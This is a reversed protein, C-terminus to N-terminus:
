KNEFIKNEEKKEKEEQEENILTTETAADSIESQIESKDSVPEIDINTSTAAVAAENVDIVEKEDKGKKSQLPDGDAQQQAKWMKAYQGNKYLLDWHSGREVITGKDLVFIEDCNVVTSLRHVVFITTHHHLTIKQEKKNEKLLEDINSMIARETTTDLASTAEDFLLIRPNKLIARALAVRQKEGGSIMTGRQGVKTEYGDPFQNVIVDHINAKKAAEYIEEPKADPKAYAINYYISQNFLPTDQPVIGFSNRLSRIKVQSIDQDDIYIKGEQPDYFRQLLRLITSKGSGSPGVFAVRSGAPISFSINNLIPQREKNYGFTVNEFRIEGGKRDLDIPQAGEIEPVSTKIKKLRFMLDMDLLSQTTERYVSGLFHLPVSLQFILSNIMVIDGVTFAGGIVGNAAMLMMTSLAISFIANQGSNLFALSAMSQTAAKEYKALSKDYIKTEFGENCFSKVVEFNILSDTAHASAQNDAMNMRRRIKTRWTTTTLTFATYAAITTLAVLAYAIGFRKILICCVMGIELITPGIHFVLAHLVQNIGKTGRDIARTLAGTQRTLHFNCDLSHLHFFISKSAKRIAKQAVSAFVANRSEQTANAGLRAVGYGILSAYIYTLLKSGPVPKANLQDIAYKFFYPVTVNLVKSLILLFLAFVVRVKVSPEDKPWIYQFFIKLIEKRTKWTM